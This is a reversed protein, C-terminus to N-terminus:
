FWSGWTLVIWEEPEFYQKEIWSGFKFELKGDVINGTFYGDQNNPDEMPEDLYLGFWGFIPFDKAQMRYLVSHMIKEPMKAPFM